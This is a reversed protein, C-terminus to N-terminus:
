LFFVITCLCISTLKNRECLFSSPILFCWIQYFIFPSMVFITTFLCHNITTYLAETLDTFMFINHHKLLPKVFLFILELSYYYCVSFTIVFSIILYMIRLRIEMIHYNIAINPFLKRKVLNNQSTLETLQKKMTGNLITFDCIMNGLIFTSLNFIQKFFM